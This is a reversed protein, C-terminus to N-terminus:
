TAGIVASTRSTETGTESPRSSRANVADTFWGVTAAISTRAPDVPVGVLVDVVLLGVAVVVVLVGAVVDLVVGVLAEGDTAKPGTRTFAPPAATVASPTRHAASVPKEPPLDNTLEFTVDTAPVVSSTSYRDSRLAVFSRPPYEYEKATGVPVYRTRSCKASIQNPAM